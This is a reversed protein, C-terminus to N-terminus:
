GVVRIHFTTHCGMKPPLCKVMKFLTGPPPVDVCVCVCMGVFLVKMVPKTSHRCAHCKPVNQPMLAQRIIYNKVMSNQTM